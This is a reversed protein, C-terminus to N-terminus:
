SRTAQARWADYEAKVRTISLQTDKQVINQILSSGVPDISDPIPWWAPLPVNLQFDTSMAVSGGSVCLESLATVRPQLKSLLESFAGNYEVTVRETRYRLGAPSTAEVSIEATATATLAPLRLPHMRAGYRGKGLSSVSEVSDDLRLVVDDGVVRTLYDALLADCPESASATASWTLQRGTMCVSSASRSASPQM